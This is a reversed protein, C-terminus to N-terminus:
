GRDLPVRSLTTRTATYIFPGPEDVLEELRPWHALLVRLQEWTTVAERGSLAVMKAGSDRVADIHSRRTQIAADRTIILWGEAAVHPIWETDKAGRAVLTCPPRYRRNNRRGPDGPYTADLRLDGIAKALGLVDEDLYFRVREPRADRM